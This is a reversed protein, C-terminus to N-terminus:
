NPSKLLATYSDESYKTYVDENYNNQTHVNKEAIEKVIQNICGVAVSVSERFSHRFM